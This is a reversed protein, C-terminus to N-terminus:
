PKAPRAGATRRARHKDRMMAMMEPCCACPEVMAAVGEQEDAASHADREVQESADGAPGSSHKKEDM